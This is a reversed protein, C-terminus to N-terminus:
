AASKLNDAFTNAAAAVGEPTPNATTAATHIAFRRIAQATKGLMPGAPYLAAEVSHCGLAFYGAEIRGVRQGSGAEAAVARTVGDVTACLDLFVESKSRDAHISSSPQNLVEAVDSFKWADAGSGAILRASVALVEDDIRDIVAAPLNPDHSADDAVPVLDAPLCAVTAALGSPDAIGADTLFAGVIALEATFVPSPTSDTTAVLGRRHPNAALLAQNRNANAWEVIPEPDGAVLMGLRDAISERVTAVALEAIESISGVREYLTAPSVFLSAALARVTPGTAGVDDVLAIYADAIQDVSVIRRDETV